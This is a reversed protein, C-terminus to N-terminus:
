HKGHQHHNELLVFFLVDLLYYVDVDAFFVFDGCGLCGVCYLSCYYIGDKELRISFTNLDANELGSFFPRHM